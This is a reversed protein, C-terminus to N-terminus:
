VRRYSIQVENYIQNALYTIHFISTYIKCIAVKEVEFLVEDPGVKPVDISKYEYGVEAKEKILVKMQSSM